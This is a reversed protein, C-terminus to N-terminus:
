KNTTFLNSIFYISVILTVMTKTMGIVSESINFILYVDHNKNEEPCSTDTSNLGYM